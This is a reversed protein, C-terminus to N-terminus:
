KWTFIEAMIVSITFQCDEKAYEVSMSNALPKLNLSKFMSDESITTFVKVYTELGDDDYVQKSPVLLFTFPGFKGEDFGMPTKGWRIPFEIKGDM